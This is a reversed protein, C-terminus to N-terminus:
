RRVANLLSDFLSSATAIIQAAAQYAQQYRLMNAAEEDLNVGSVSDRADLDDANVAAEADRNVQATRTQLGIDATLRSVANAVSLTGGDMVGAGLADSIAFVNRNDGTAGANSRVTFTDGTAPTGSIQVRWGNADINGGATYTQAAGGNITYTTASTFVISATTLLQANGANLVEGTSISGSGANGTTAAARIPAAAAVRTPDTFAVNFGRVADRTPHIIYQDGTASGAGVVISLGDALIPDALTGAGTFTVSAGTDQRRLTYGSGTNALVYDGGTIAGINTRTATPNATGTNTTVDSIGVGGMTFFDGGLAGNLDMGEHHQANVQSAIALSIRGLENRAPELMERRWDLLGGLTGGSVARSIDVTGSATKLAFQTREPDFPDVVTTIESATTGLVLPQGNGIFVNVTGAGEAITTVSVKTSLEDILRDRQDLLDNPPQGSNETAVTIEGNLRAIGQSLLTVERAEGAFRTDVDTAMDRLRKDYDQLRQALARGESLLVQRAPISGPTSSVESLADTYSQLSTTLGNTTDGLMNDLREAQTAFADLRALNGGSARSQATLFQDYIRRVQSTNVGNGIWSTGVVSPQRTTFEARQRSYGPTSVNAINHATTDLARQLARLSSLGTGLMDPM